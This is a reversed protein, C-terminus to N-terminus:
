RRVKRLVPWLYPLTLALCLAGGGFRLWLAPQAAACLAAALLVFLAVARNRTGRSIRFGYQKRYCILILVLDFFNALALALGAGTLNGFYYGVIVSVCLVVDYILEMTMYRVSHGRALALYAVPAYIAKFYMFPAACLVMPQIALFDRTYLLQIIWPLFLCFVMLFPAMLVILTNIQRNITVNQNRLDGAPIASLRPFYDADMAVFVMRAYSVTLTFGAAYYGIAMLGAGSRMLAARILMETAATTVGAMVYAAGMKVLPWGPRLFDRRLPGIKYPFTQWAERLHFGFLSATGAVLMPLVGDLGWLAYSVWCGCLTFLANWLTARALRKLHRLSKLIAIEGGALTTMAVAPALLCFAGTRATTDCAFLSILPSFVLCVAAGLLATVVVWTRLLKVEEDLKARDAHEEAALASLRKVGSMGLGFNTAGGLLDLSRAYLDALGMGVAGILQAAVKNRVVSILIYLAQVSGLLGTSKFLQRYNSM